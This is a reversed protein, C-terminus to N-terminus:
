RSCGSSTIIVQADVVTYTAGIGACIVDLTKFLDTQTFTTTLFCNSMQAHDYIIPVGYAKELAQLIKSMSAEKFVLQKLEQKTVLVEPKEVLTKTLMENEKQFVAKQNPTLILGKSKGTLGNKRGLAYVAVQGSLVDVTVISANRIAKVWFSTGLVKTMLGNAYVYFPKAPNRKVKFYAEGILYVQRKDSEDTTSFGMQSNPKLVVTSQDPLTVAQEVLSRNVIKRFTSSGTPLTAGFDPKITQSQNSFLWTGIAMICVISAAVVWRWNGIPRIREYTRPEITSWILPVEAQPIDQKSAQTLVEVAVRAQAILTSKEPHNDLFARWFAELDPTPYKVWEIFDSDTVLEDFTYTQYPKPM